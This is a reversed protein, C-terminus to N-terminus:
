LSPFLAGKQTVHNGEKFVKFICFHTSFYANVAIESSRFTLIERPLMGRAGRGTQM